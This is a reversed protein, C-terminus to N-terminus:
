ITEVCQPGYNTPSPLEMLHDAKDDDIVFSTERFIRGLITAYSSCLGQPYQAEKATNFRGQEDLDWEDQDHLGDCFRRLEVFEKNATLLSTKKKRTSGYMCAHFDVFFCQKYLPAM